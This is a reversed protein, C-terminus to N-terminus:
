KEISFYKQYQTQTSPQKTKTMDRDFPKNLNNGALDELKADINLVFNGKTWEQDPIFRCSRDLGDWEFKGKIPNGEKTTIYLTEMLLYHDLVEGFLIQIPERSLAKPLIIKWQVPDPSVSDRAAVVFSKTFDKQLSRGQIDQWQKAVRVQYTNKQQLPNGLKLNPQLDRKIRGPDLWVTLVTRNENWLEPQLNLFVDHLTDKGNKILSIYKDSQGERMPHSFQLYIKLMNEPVTDQQPYCNTLKPADNSDAFPITFHAVTNGRVRIAYDTGPTFPILPTFRLGHDLRYDGLINVASDTTALQIKVLQKLSDAAIGSIMKEPITVGIAKDDKWIIKPDHNENEVRCSMVMLLVFFLLNSLRGLRSSNNVIRNNSPTMPQPLCIQVEM